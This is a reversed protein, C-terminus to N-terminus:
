LCEWGAQHALCLNMVVLVFSDTGDTRNFERYRQLIRKIALLNASAADICFTALIVLVPWGGVLNRSSAALNQLKSLTASIGSEFELAALM